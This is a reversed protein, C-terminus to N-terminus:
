SGTALEVPVRDAIVELGNASNSHLALSELWSRDILPAVSSDFSFRLPISQNMWLINRADGDADLVTLAFNEGRRLKGVVVIQLHALVRDDFRISAGDAGYTLTGM